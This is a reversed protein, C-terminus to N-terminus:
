RACAASSSSRAAFATGAIVLLSFLAALAVLELITEDIQRLPVGVVLTGVSTGGAM